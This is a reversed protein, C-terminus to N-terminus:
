SLRHFGDFHEGKNMCLDTRVLVILKYDMWNDPSRKFTCLLVSKCLAFLLKSHAYVRSYM